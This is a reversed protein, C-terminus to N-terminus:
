IQRNSAGNSNTGSRWSPTSKSPAARQCRRRLKVGLATRIAIERMRTTGRALLLNAVNVCAILLVLGVAFLLVLLIPRVPGLIVDRLPQVFVGRTENEPYAKELQAAIAGLEEGASEPSAGEALRGVVLLPHTARPLRDPDGQLPTFVDVSTRADRDAFGRSYDAARLIQLIGFDASAPLVGVITRPRDDLRLRRGIIGPDRLFVRDWLNESILVVDGGGPQDEEPNFTRGLAPKIGHTERAVFGGFESVQAAEASFTSFIRSRPLNM